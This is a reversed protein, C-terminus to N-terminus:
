RNWRLLSMGYDLLGKATVTGLGTTLVYIVNFRYADEPGM